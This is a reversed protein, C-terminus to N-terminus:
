ASKAHLLVICVVKFTMYNLPVGSLTVFPCDGSIFFIFTVLKNEVIITVFVTIVLMLAFLCYLKLSHTNNNHGQKNVKKLM